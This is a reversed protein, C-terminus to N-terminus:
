GAILLKEGAARGDVGTDTEPLDKVLVKHGKPDVKVVELSIEEDLEVFGDKLDARLDDTMATCHLMVNRQLGPVRLLVFGGGHESEPEIRKVRGVIRQGVSPLSGGSGLSGVSSARPSRAPAGTGVGTGALVRDLRLGIRRREVDMTTVAVEVEDGPVLVRGGLKHEPVLGNVGHAVHVFVGLGPIVNDVRSTFETGPGYASALGAWPNLQGPVLTYTTDGALDVEFWGEVRTGVPFRKTMDQIVRRYDVETANLVVGRGDETLVMVYDREAIVVQGPVPTTAGNHMPLLIMETSPQDMAAPLERGLETMLRSMAKWDEGYQLYRFHGQVDSPIDDPDQTLVIIRKGLALALAFEAAVNCSRATFDVLVISAAQLGHWATDTVDGQGYVQDARQATMGAKVCTPVIVDTYFDDFNFLEGSTLTKTGFPFACFVANAKPRCDRRLKITM